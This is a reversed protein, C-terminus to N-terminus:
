ATNDAQRCLRCLRGSATALNNSASENWSWYRRCHPCLVRVTDTQAVADEIFLLDFRYHQRAAELCILQANKWSNLGGPRFRAQHLRPGRGAIGEKLAVVGSEMTRICGKQLGNLAMLQILTFRGKPRANSRPLTSRDALANLACLSIPGM